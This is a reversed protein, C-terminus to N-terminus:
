RKGIVIHSIRGTPRSTDSTAAASSRLGRNMAELRTQDVEPPSSSGTGAIGPATPAPKMPASPRLLLLLLPAVVLRWRRSGSWGEKCAIVSSVVSAILAALANLLLLGKLAAEGFGGPGDSRIITAEKFFIAFLVLNILNYSLWAWM